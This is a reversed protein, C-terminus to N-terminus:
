WLGTMSVRMDRSVVRLERLGRATIAKSPVIM